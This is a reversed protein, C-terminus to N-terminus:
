SEDSENSDLESKLTTLNADVTDLFIKALDFQKIDAAEQLNDIENSIAECLLDVKTKRKWSSTSSTWEAVSAGPTDVYNLKKEEEKDPLVTGTPIIYPILDHNMPRIGDKLYKANVQISELPNAAVKYDGARMRRIIVGGQIRMYNACEQMEVKTWKNNM